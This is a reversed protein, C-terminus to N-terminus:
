NKKQGSVMTQEANLENDPNTSDIEKVESTCEAALLVTTNVSDVEKPAETAEKETGANVSEICDTRKRKLVWKDM